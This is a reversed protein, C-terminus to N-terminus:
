GASIYRTIKMKIFFMKEVIEGNPPTTLYEWFYKFPYRGRKHKRKHKYTTM